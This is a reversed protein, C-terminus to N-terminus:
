DRRRVRARWGTGLTDRLIDAVRAGLLHDTTDCRFVIAEEDFFTSIAPRGDALLRDRFAPSTLAAEAVGDSLQYAIQASEMVSCM